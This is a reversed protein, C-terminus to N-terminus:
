CAVVAGRRLADLLAGREPPLRGDLVQALLLAKARGVEPGPPISLAAMIDHGDIPLALRTPQEVRAEALRREFEDHGDRHPRASAAADARALRMLRPLLDGADRALRRVRGGGWDSTYRMPKM